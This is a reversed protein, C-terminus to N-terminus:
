SQKGNKCTSVVNPIKDLEFMTVYRPENSICEHEMCKHDEYNSSNYVCEDETAKGKDENEEKKKKLPWYNLYLDVDVPETQEARM